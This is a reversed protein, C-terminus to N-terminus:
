ANVEKIAKYLARGCSPVLYNTQATTRGNVNSLIDKSTVIHQNREVYVCQRVDIGQQKLAKRIRKAKKANM